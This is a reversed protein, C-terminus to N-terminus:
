ESELRREDATLERVRDLIAGLPHDGGHIGHLDDPTPVPELILRDGEEYVFLEGPTEIGFSECLTEPFTIEGQGSVGIM